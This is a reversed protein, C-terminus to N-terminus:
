LNKRCKKRWINLEIKKVRIKRDIASIMQIKAENRNPETSQSIIALHQESSIYGPRNVSQRYIKLIERRQKRLKWLDHKLIIGELQTM